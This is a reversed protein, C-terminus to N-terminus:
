RNTVVQNRGQHKAQFLARDARKLIHYLAQDQETMTAVGVSITVQVTTQEIQISMAAIAQRIRDGVKGAAEIETEPLFVVFEEGGFRGFGDVSRLCDKITRAVVKLTEDGIDHGYTDNIKKFHDLDLMLVSLPRHYRRARSFEKEGLQFLHRRNSIGTLYDTSVLSELQSYAKELQDRIQKLELHTKVRALLEYKKFPKTIYDVAGEEFAKVLDNQENSATLFIIPLNHYLRDSKLAKCVEIGTIEPMMLDLLILDPKASQVRELAQKGSSAFTTSYGVEDLIEIVLQLNKVTDDVVLILFKEPNFQQM